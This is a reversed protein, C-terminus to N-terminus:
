PLEFWLRYYSDGLSTCDTHWVWQAGMSTLDTPQSGWYHSVSSSACPSPTTWAGDDFGLTYWSADSTSDVMVWSGDGTLHETSGDIVVAGIFGAIAAGSDWGYVALVHPGSDLTYSFTDSTSWGGHSGLYDEDVWGEWQDDVSLIFDVEYELETCDTIGDGDSDHGEDVSGDCDNDVGDCLESAGPNSGPDGDDCDTADDTYGSPESCSEVPSGAPDGYGDLDADPYWAVADDAGEDVSGDCDDDVGNCSEAASPNVTGDSDDCDSADDTYGSPEGCNTTADGPDGYGDLDDDAYWTTADIASDEDVSGDCDDDMGNCLEDAAPNVAADGDDCDTADAVFDSPQSCAQTPVGPDGYGDGDSDAYWTTADIASDEDVSGDCDDDMGNCLEDAAPNVAADGDDCDTADAVFDSPQSCAQTPVGPDGYGDGDSDAYWTTADIASDEDVSGDCDNDMGDCIEEAAPHVAADGDDCDSGDAVYGGPQSCGQIAVDPDGYGDGDVDEYWTPADGADSEDSVGDCDNDIGDCLETAAPNVGADSDDCDTADAVFDSPQGCAETTVGADGYGDGDGDAYWTLSDGADDEDVEGDCDDDMGNCLEEAAPNVAADGDDCDTADAVFGSPQSCATTTSGPDGYGDGDADEYWASPDLAGEEDVSGDCDDDIGNCREEAAPNVAADGDDCDEDNDAYGEPLTCALTTVAADGYGDGDLDAYWTLMADEDVEGDCDNDRDDCVEEADPHVAPDEDDCDDDASYGDMDEDVFSPGTDDKDPDTATRCACLALFFLAPRLAM